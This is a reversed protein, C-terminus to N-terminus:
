ARSTLPAFWFSEDRDKFFVNIACDSTVEGIVEVETVSPTTQGYVQGVLGAVGKAETGASTRIRVNDGFSLPESPFDTRM